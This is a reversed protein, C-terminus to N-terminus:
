IFSFIMGSLLAQLVMLFIDGYMKKLKKFMRYNVSTGGVEEAEEEGGEEEEAAADADNQLDEEEEDMDAGSLEWSQPKFQEIIIIISTLLFDTVTSSLYDAL